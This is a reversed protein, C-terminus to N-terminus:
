TTVLQFASDTRAPVGASMMALSLLSILATRCIGSIPSFIALRPMSGSALVGSASVCRM